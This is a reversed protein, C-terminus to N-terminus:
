KLFWTFRGASIQFMEQVSYKGPGTLFLGLYLGLYMFALEKKAFPDPAHVIFFAVIMTIILPILAVRSFLGLALLAACVVEAFIALGLSLPVGLGLPDPFRDLLGSYGNYKPLGHYVLMTVGGVLRLILLGLHAM